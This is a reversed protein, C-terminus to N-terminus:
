AHIVTEKRNIVFAEHRELFDATVEAFAEPREAIIAHGADYVFVLHCNPMLEKYFRGMEPPIVHDLTGFLVLTPTALDRMRAELAPDRDPGRLRSVLTRTKAAIAPDPTPLPGMREPHAYLRRTIEEPTGSPLETGVPRIAAPAELVLGQVREPHQAALWLAVKGGFSTGLLNFRKIDLAAVAEAMTDALETMTATRTNAPSAGFGPMEFAIVRYHQSLLDHGRTLRLGGAGHLHILPTGHGAELYRIRFGSAEVFGERFAAGPTDTQAV